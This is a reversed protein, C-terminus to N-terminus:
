VGETSSSLQHNNIKFVVDVQDGLANDVAPNIRLVKVPLNSDTAGTSADVEMASRRFITSATGVTINYNLNINTQAAITADDAQGVFEQDPDDAVLVDNGSTAYSLAVGISAAAGAACQVVQGGSSLKLMDGPYVTGGAQYTGTKRLRGYPEFGRSQDKNAM